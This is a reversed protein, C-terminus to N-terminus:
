CSSILKRDIILDCFAHCLTLHAIEVFGYAGTPAPVYFNLDGLSRLPNDNKFGSMTILFCNKAKAMKAGNLINDSKGSSSIAIVLDNPDAFMEIPKEFVYPYGYDNGICTLLSTDNFAIARMKGNKWYDVSQHSAIAASGGNGIFIIKNKKNNTHKVIKAIAEEMGDELKIKEGKLNTVEIKLLLEGFGKFYNLTNSDNM